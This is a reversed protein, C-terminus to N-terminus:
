LAFGFCVWHCCCQVGGGDGSVQGIMRSKELFMYRQQALNAQRARQGPLGDRQLFALHFDHAVLVLRELQAHGLQDVQRLVIRRDGVFEM